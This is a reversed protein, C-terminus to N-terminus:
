IHNLVKKFDAFTTSCAITEKKGSLFRQLSDPIAVRTSLTSEVVDPFKAPHATELFVGTASPHQKLYKKIGLYGIAGHPDLVYNLNKFVDIMAAQTEQDSFSYGTIARSMAKHDHHFLDLMRAFNSPNGVDMANNITQVSPRPSFQTTNLYQPVIDNANTAAVFHQIPLGMRQAFLGATLNGFNGSPVCFVVENQQALRSWAYFYYFSQPILRAINISNASTLFFKSKLEEDLFAQKVLRQCDDFTGSVEVATINKGLTTFQKEQIDSVKGSPYLVIVRTGPVGLFGNAVASGTDGSTAVLIVIERKQQQAFYGLVQSMFRAGFDKFAATPGHFLELSFINKEVEVLPADFTITNHIITQLQEEPIEDGVFPKAVALAIEQFTKGSLTKFFESPFVPIQEPMYLGNDPALGQIVAQQLTVFQQTTNTSYFRM